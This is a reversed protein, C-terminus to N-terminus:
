PRALDALADVGALYAEESIRIHSRRRIKTGPVGIAELTPGSQAHWIALLVTIDIRWPWQEADELQRDEGRDEFFTSDFRGAGILRGGVRTVGYLLFRDGAAIGLPRANKPFHVRVALEASERLWEDELPSRAAGVSKLWFEM